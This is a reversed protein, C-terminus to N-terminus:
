QWCYWPLDYPFGQFALENMRLLPYRKTFPDDKERMLKLMTRYEGSIYRGPRPDTSIFLWTRGGECTDDTTTLFGKITLGKRATAAPISFFSDAEGTVIVTRRDGDECPCNTIKALSPGGMWQTFHSVSGDPNTTSYDARYKQWM